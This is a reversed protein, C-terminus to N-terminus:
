GPLGPHDDNESKKLQHNNYPFDPYITIRTHRIAASGELTARVGMSRM